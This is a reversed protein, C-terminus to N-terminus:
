PELFEVHREPQKALEIKEAALCQIDRKALYKLFARLAILHYNQTNKKLTEGRADKLRNLWLRFQRVTELSVDKARVIKAEQVAWDAFRGLYFAYNERTRRSRNKEIELYDGFERIREHIESKKAPIEATESSAM